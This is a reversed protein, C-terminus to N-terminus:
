PAPPPSEDPASDSESWSSYLYQTGLFKYYYNVQEDLLFFGAACTIIFLLALFFHISDQDNKIKEM